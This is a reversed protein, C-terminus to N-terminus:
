IYEFIYMELGLARLACQFGGMPMYERLTPLVNETDLKYTHKSHVIKYHKSLQIPYLSGVNQSYTDIPSSETRGEPAPDLFTSM